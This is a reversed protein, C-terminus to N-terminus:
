CISHYQYLKMKAIRDTLCSDFPPKKSSRLCISLVDYSDTLSISWHAIIRNFNQQIETKSDIKQPSPFSVSEIFQAFWLFRLIDLFYRSYKMVLLAHKLCSQVHNLCLYNESTPMSNWLILKTGFEWINRNTLNKKEKHMYLTIFFFFPVVCRIVYSSFYSSRQHYCVNVCLLHIVCVNVFYYSRHDM